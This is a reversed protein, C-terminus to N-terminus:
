ASFKCRRAKSKTISVASFRIRRARAANEVPLWVDKARAPVGLEKLSVASNVFQLCASLDMRDKCTTLDLKEVTPPLSSFLNKSILGKEGGIVIEKVHLALTVVEDFVNEPAPNHFMSDRITIHQLCLSHLRIFSILTASDDLISKQIILRRLTWLAFSTPFVVDACHVIYLTTLSRFWIGNAEPHPALALPARFAGLTLTELNDWFASSLAPTVVSDGRNNGRLDLHEIMPILWENDILPQISPPDAGPLNGRVRIRCNPLLKVVEIWEPRYIDVYIWQVYPRLMPGALLTTTLKGADQGDMRLRRYLHRRSPTLWAHCVLCLSTLASRHTNDSDGYVISAFFSIIFEVVDAPIRPTRFTWGEQIKRALANRKEKMQTLSLALKDISLDIAEIQREKEQLTERSFLPYSGQDGYLM